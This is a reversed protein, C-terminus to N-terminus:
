FKVEKLTSKKIGEPFKFAVQYKNISGSRGLKEIADEDLISIVIGDIPISHLEAYNQFMPIAITEVYELFSDIMASNIIATEYLRTDSPIYQYRGNEHGNYLWRTDSIKTSSSIKLPEVTLYQSWEPNYNKPITNVIMTAASRHNKPPRSLNEKMRGFDDFNVYIETQVGFAKGKLDTFPLKDRFTHEVFTDGNLIHNLVVGENSETDKRSVVDQISDKECEFVVSWGDFKCAIGVTFFKEGTINFANNLWHELSERSDKPGKDREWIFHVKDLSGRLEPYLHQKTPRNSTKTNNTGVIKHGTLTYYLSHLKDSYNDLSLLYEGYSQFDITEISKEIIDDLGNDVLHKILILRELM